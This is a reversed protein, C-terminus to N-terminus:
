LIALEWKMEHTPIATELKMYHTLFRGRGGLFFFGFVFLVFFPFFSPIFIHRKLEAKKVKGCEASAQPHSFIAKYKIVV